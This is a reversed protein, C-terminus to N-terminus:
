DFSSIRADGLLGAQGLQAELWATDVEGPTTPFEAM